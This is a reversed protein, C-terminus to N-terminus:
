PKRGDVIGPKLFLGSAFFIMHGLRTWGIALMLAHAAACHIVMIIEYPGALEGALLGTIFPALVCCMVAYDSWSTVAFVHRIFTRRLLLFLGAAIAAATFVRTIVPNVLPPLVGWAQDLLIAHAMSTLPAMFISAHFIVGASALVRDRGAATIQPVILDGSAAGTYASVKVHPVPFRLGNNRGSIIIITKRALGAISLPVTIYLCPGALFDYILSTTQMGASLGSTKGTDFIKNQHLNVYFKVTSDFLVFNQQSRSIGETYHIFYDM